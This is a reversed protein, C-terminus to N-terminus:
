FVGVALVGLILAAQAGIVGAIVSQKAVLFVGYGFALAGIRLWLPVDEFIGSPFVVLKAIVAAILATAVCRVWVLIESDESIQGALAVGLWRWVETPLAGLLLIALASLLIETM